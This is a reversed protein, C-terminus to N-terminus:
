EVTSVSSATGTCISFQDYSNMPFSGYHEPPALGDLDIFDSRVVCRFIIM